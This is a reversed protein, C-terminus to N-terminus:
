SPEDTDIYFILATGTRQDDERLRRVEAAEFQPMITTGGVVEDVYQDHAKVAEIAKRIADDRDLANVVRWSYVGGIAVSGDVDRIPLDFGHVYVAYREARPTDFSKGTTMSGALTM